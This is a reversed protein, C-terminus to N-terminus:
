TNAEKKKTAASTMSFDDDAKGDDDDDCNMSQRDTKIDRLQINTTTM